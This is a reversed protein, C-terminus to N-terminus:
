IDEERPQARELIREYLDRYLQPTDGGGFLLAGSSFSTGFTAAATVTQALGDTLQDGSLPSLPHIFVSWVVGNAIAYRADLVADFNAQLMRTEVAPPMVEARLIPVMIRMRDANEDTLITVPYSEIEFEWMNPAKRAAGGAEGLLGQVFADIRDNSM